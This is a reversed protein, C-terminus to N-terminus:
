LRDYDPHLVKNLSEAVIYTLHKLEDDMAKPTVVLDLHSHDQIKQLVKEKEIEAQELSENLIAGISTVTAVGIAIVPIKLSQYNLAKRHNGVGSGPQIGTNNIQVVRNIRAINRTALADVAIILDPQYSQAISKVIEFSELGTQGMVGPQVVAVNRTGELLAQDENEYLHATVMIDNVVAPGLADSTIFRNGLGVVLIKSLKLEMKEIMVQLNEHIAEIIQKRDDQDFLNKFEISIYEGKAKGLENQDNLVSIMNCKIFDNRKEIHHYTETHINQTILEDAFDTRIQFINDM